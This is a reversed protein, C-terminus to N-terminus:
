PDGPLEFERGVLLNAAKPLTRLRVIKRPEDLEGDYQWAIERSFEFELSPAEVFTLGDSVQERGAVIDVASALLGWPNEGSIACVTLQGDQCSVSRVMETGFERMPGLNLVFVAASQFSRDSHGPVRVTVKPPDLFSGVNRAAGWLYAMGGWHAKMERPADENIDAPFGAAAMVLFYRDPELAHGVDVRVARTAAIMEDLAEEPSEPIRLTRAIVNATGFPVHGVPTDVNARVLTEVVDRLTGDGGGVLLADSDRALDLWDSRPSDSETELITGRVDHREFAGELLGRKEDRDRTGSVPNLIVGFRTAVSSRTSPIM